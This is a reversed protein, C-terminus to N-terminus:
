KLCQQWTALYKGLYEQKSSSHPNRPGLVVKKEVVDLIREKIALSDDVPVVFGNIGDVIVDRAVGVDTTIVPVGATAAEILTRGYGEYLSTNLFLDAGKIHGIPDKMWGTVHVFDLKELESRMPGDGIIILGVDPHTVRVRKVIEAAWVVRKEETLRSAMVIYFGFGPYKKRLDISEAEEISETDVFIPLVVSKEADFRGRANAILSQKTRDSVVRIGDARALTQWAIIYRIKNKISETVFYQNAFDTHIQLQLPLDFKRKLRVGILGIEFPDQCTILSDTKSMKRDVIIRSAIKYGDIMRLLKGDSNTPYLHLNDDHIEIGAKKGCLIVIHLEDVMEAYERMRVYAPSGIDLIHTDTSLM